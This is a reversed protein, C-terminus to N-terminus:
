GTETMMQPTVRTMFLKGKYNLLQQGRHHHQQRVKDQPLHRLRVAEKDKRRIKVPRRHQNLRPAPKERRRGEKRLPNQLRHTVRDVAVRDM